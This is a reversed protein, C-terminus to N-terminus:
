CSGGNNRSTSPCFPCNGPYHSTSGCHNCPWRSAQVSVPFCELWLDTDRIDWRLSPDNAAQTTIKKDHNLWSQLPHDSNATTIIRQYAVLHPACFPDLFVRVSLYLTWAEMWASFSTIRKSTTAQPKILYNDGSPTLQLTLTQSQSELAGFMSKPLITAFNIYEGRAIKEKIKTPIPPPTPQFLLPTSQPPQM